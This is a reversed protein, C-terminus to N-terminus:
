HKQAKEVEKRLEEFLTLPLDNGNFVQRRGEFIGACYCALMGSLILALVLLDRLSLSFRDKM